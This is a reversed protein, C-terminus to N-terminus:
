GLASRKSVAQPLEVTKDVASLDPGPRGLYFGQLMDVAMESSFLMEETTELGEMLVKVGNEQFASILSKLLRGTEPTQMATLFLSRDLKIIDPSVSIYREVNSHRTGFDDLAFRYGNTKILNCLRLLIEPNTVETELIEFVIDNRGMGFKALRSFTYFFEREIEEVTNYNAVNVNVFLSVNKITTKKFGRIHLAVCLCEIFLADRKAVIKFFDEPPITEDGLHSRVLGEYGSLTATKGDTVTYIPQYVPKLIYDNYRGFVQGNEDLEIADGVFEPRTNM